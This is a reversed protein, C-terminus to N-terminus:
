TLKGIGNLNLRWNEAPATRAGSCRSPVMVNSCYKARLYGFGVHVLKDIAVATSSNGGDGADDPQQGKRGPGPRGIQRGDVSAGRGRDCEGDADHHERQPEDQDGAETAKLHRWSM